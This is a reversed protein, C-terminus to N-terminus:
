GHADGEMLLFAGKPEDGGSEWIPPYPIERELEGSLRNIEEKLEIIRGERDVMADNFSQLETLIRKRETIDQKIAIFYSIEGSEDYLPSIIMEEDYLSGDKRRNVLQGQWTQGALISQWMQGYFIAKHRGSKLLRPSQGLVEEQGYGTLRTFAPNVWRIIGQRDVIAIANAAAELAAGQLRLAKQLAKDESVDWNVGIM